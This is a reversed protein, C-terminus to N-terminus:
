LVPMSRPVLDELKQCIEQPDMKEAAMQAAEYVLHGSGSSLNCSDVVYVNPFEQAALRANQHSSSFVSGLSIHIVAEYKPSLEEFVKVYDYTNVAATKSLKNTEKVYEFIEAPTIDVGDRYSKEGLLVYLPVLTINNSELFSPSLDCTSDATIKIIKASEKM